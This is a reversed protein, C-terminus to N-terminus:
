IISGITKLQIYAAYEQFYLDKLREKSNNNNFEKYELAFTHVHSKNLLLSYVIISSLGCFIIKNENLLYYKLITEPSLEKSIQLYEKFPSPLKFQTM